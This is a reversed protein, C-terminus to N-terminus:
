EPCDVCRQRCVNRTTSCSARCTNRAAACQFPPTKNPGTEALCEAHFEDCKSQCEPLSSDCRAQCSSVTTGETDRYTFRWAGRGQTGVYINNQGCERDFYAWYPRPIIPNAANGSNNTVTTWSAGNDRSLFIGADAAGALLTNPNNPDFVALTPQLYGLTQVQMRFTGGGNMLGDLVVDPVWNAGGDPSRFMQVRTTFNIFDSVFASIFLRDPNNPDVGFAGVSTFGSPLPVDRWTGTTSLGNYRMLTAQNATMAYFTPNTPSGAAWLGATVIPANTGLPTWMIPNASINRTMFIGSSTAVGYRRAGFRAIVDPFIIPLVDGPPSNPIKGAGGTLDPNRLVISSKQNWVTFVVQTSDSGVDPVDGGAPNTWAPTAAGANLTVFAGNDQTGMYLAERSLSSPINAGSLSWLWLARVTATPNTWQPTQCAPSQTLANFHTGGDNSLLVPCSDRSADCIQDCSLLENACKARCRSAITNCGAITPNGPEGVSDICSARETECDQKCSTETNACNQHCAAVNIPPPKNFVVEGM